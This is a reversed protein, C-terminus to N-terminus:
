TSVFPGRPVPPALPILRLIPPPGPPTALRPGPDARPPDRPRLRQVHLVGGRAFSPTTRRPEPRMDLAVVDSGPLGIRLLRVIRSGPLRDAGRNFRVRLVTTDGRRESTVIRGIPQGGLTVPSGPALGPLETLTRYEVPSSRNTPLMLALTILLKAAAM